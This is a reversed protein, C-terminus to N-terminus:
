IEKRIEDITKAKLYESMSVKRDINRDIMSELGVDGTLDWYRCDFEQGTRYTRRGAQLRLAYDWTKDFYITNSYQQLNLGLSEKQYSLVKAKPYRRECERRSDVYKCFIVTDEQAIERFLSDVKAFKDETCCYCHQMKQTMELFINSDRMIVTELSLYKEKIAMYEERTGDDLSYPLNTYNQTINLKLDCRYVYHRILSHLYDINEYGNIIEKKMCRCGMRRRITTYDCFTDKFQAYSMNLIDPSLFQMQAWLDLLNRSIPTGNLILRYRALKGIELARRTRKAERNKIKLSEDMVVFIDGREQMRAMVESYIRDSQQISEIGTFHVPVQVGGWKDFENRIAGLTRVPGIWELAGCRSAAVIDMAVRTKGTGAEMFLAGVRWQTLHRIADNQDSTRSRM